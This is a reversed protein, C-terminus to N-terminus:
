PLELFYCWEVVMTPAKIAALSWKMTKSREADVIVHKSCRTSTAANTTQLCSQVQLDTM